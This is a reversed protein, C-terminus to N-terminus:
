GTSPTGVNTATPALQPFYVALFNHV